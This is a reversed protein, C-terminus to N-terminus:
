SNDKPRSSLCAKPNQNVIVDLDNKFGFDEYAMLMIYIFKDVTIEDTYEITSSIGNEELSVTLKSM